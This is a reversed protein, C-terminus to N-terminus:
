QVLVAAHRRGPERPWVHAQARRHRLVRRAAPDLGRHRQRARGPCAGGGGGRGLREVLRRVCTGRAVSESCPRSPCQGRVPGMALETMNLKGLTVAGAAVLRSAATCDHPTVFYEKTKTGCSTPLGASTVSTRSRSRARRPAPGRWRGATAEAELQRATRLAGEPDLTIFARLRGDLRRIRALCDETAEVPSIKRQRIAGALGEITWDTMAGRGDAAEELAAIFRSPEEALALDAAAREIAAALNALDVQQTRSETM